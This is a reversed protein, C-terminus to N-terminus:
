IGGLMLHPTSQSKSKPWALRGLASRVWRRLSLLVCFRASRAGGVWQLYVAEREDVLINFLLINGPNKLETRGPSPSERDNLLADWSDIM